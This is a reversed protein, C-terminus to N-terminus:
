PRYIQYEGKVERRRLHLPFEYPPKANKIMDWTTDERIYRLDDRSLTLLNKHRPKEAAAKVIFIVNEYWSSLFHELTQSVNGRFPDAMFVHGDHIGKVVVFHRYGYVEIPAICPWHEPNKLDKEEARYGAADYGLVNCLRKMDLLSFARLKKIQEKDGHKMMGRIVQKESLSEGLSFNLLTALAASGCSYDFEQKTVHKFRLKEYPTVEFRLRPAVNQGCYLSVQNKPLDAPPAFGSIFAAIIAAGFVIHM